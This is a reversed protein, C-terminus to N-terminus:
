IVTELSLNKKVELDVRVPKEPEYLFSFVLRMQYDKQLTVDYMTLFEALIIRSENLALHQGICNRPGASFPTFAYANHSREKELWRYPNFRNSDKFHEENFCNYFYDVVICDGKKIQFEGVMHDKVAKRPFVGPVPTATRLTEKLFATTFELKNLDDVDVKENPHYHTKVEEIMKAKFEPHKELLYVAMTVLHGTTDMGAMFFTVFQDIIEEEEIKGEEGNYELLLDLLDKSTKEVQDEFRLKKREAIINRCVERFKYIRTILNRHKPLIGKIIFWTGLLQKEASLNLSGIQSIIDALVLTLPKDEMQYSNLQEGFFIKGVVEGTIKQFVDMVHVNNLSTNRLEHLTEHATAQVAPLVAKLFGFHFANSIIKRHAKWKSGESTLLGKGLLKAYLELFIPDKIYNEANLYFEKIFATDSLTVLVDSGLNSCAIREPKTQPKVKTHYLSDGHQNLSVICNKFGGLLPFFFSNIGQKKYFRM